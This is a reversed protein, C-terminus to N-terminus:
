TTSLIMMMLLANHFLASLPRLTSLGTQPTLAWARAPVGKAVDFLPDRMGQRHERDRWSRHGAFMYCLVLPIGKKTNTVRNGGCLLDDTDRQRPMRRQKKMTSKDLKVFFVIKLFLLAVFSFRSARQYRSATARSQM